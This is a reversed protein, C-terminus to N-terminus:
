TKGDEVWPEAEKCKVSDMLFSFPLTLYMWLSYGAFYLIKAAALVGLAMTKLTDRPNNLEEVLVGDSAEM